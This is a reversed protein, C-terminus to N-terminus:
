VTGVLYSKRLEEPFKEVAYRLMTRPMKRYRPKLFTEEATRDRNGIERLMWGTAKHILDHPHDLFMEAIELTPEFSGQKIFAFTSMIGIRQRWLNDSAALEVLIDWSGTEYLYKGLTYHASSDVLDWNNIGALHSLYFEALEKKDGPSKARNYLKVFMFLATLRHEHVPSELLNEIDALQAEKYYAQAVKRQEPVSIGIFRDGEGYEGRGTKFFREKGPVAEPDAQEELAKKVKDATTM